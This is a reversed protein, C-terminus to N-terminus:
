LEVVQGLGLREANAIARRAAFLDQVAHGVSKFFTIDDPQARGLSPDALLESLEVWRESSTVGASQAAVLEGAEELASERLDVVIRACRAIARQDLERMDLRFSGVGSIHAGPKLHDGALVPERSSTAAIVVDADTVAERSSSAAVLRASVLPAMEAVFEAVKEARPAYVRVETLPRVETMALLQMRAQGGVGLLAGVKADARALLDTALGAVGATRIATLTGGCCLGTTEGTVPDIILLVGSTVDAGRLRNGPFVNMVKAIRGVDGGAAGMLLTTRDGEVVQVRPPAAIAGTALSAFAERNAAIADVMPLARRVDASNLIRLQV